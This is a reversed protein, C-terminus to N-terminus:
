FGGRGENIFPRAETGAKKIPCPRLCKKYYWKANLRYCLRRAQAPAPELRRSGFMARQICSPILSAGPRGWVGVWVGSLDPVHRATGRKTHKGTTQKLIVQVYLM